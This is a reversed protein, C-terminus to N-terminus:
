RWPASLRTSPFAWKGRLVGLITSSGALGSVVENLTGDGGAAIVVPEGRAAFDGALERAEGAHGTAYLSFRSAHKMMFRLVRGGKQGRAKPNFILPYRHQRAMGSEEGL